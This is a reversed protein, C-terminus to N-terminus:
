SNSDASQGTICSCGSFRMINMIKGCINSHIMYCDGLDKSRIWFLTPNPFSFGMGYFIQMHSKVGWLKVILIENNNVAFRELLM